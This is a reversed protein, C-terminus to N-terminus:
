AASIDVVFRHGSAEVRSHFTMSGITTAASQDSVHAHIWASTQAPNAGPYQFGAIASLFDAAAATNPKGPDERYVARVLQVHEDTNGYVVVRRVVPGQNIQCFGDVGGIDESVDMCTLGQQRALPLIAQLNIGAMYRPTPSPKASQTPAPTPSTKTAPHLGPIALRGTLALASLAVIVLVVLVVAAVLVLLRSRRGSPQDPLAPFSSEAAHHLPRPLQDVPLWQEGDWWYNGDSSFQPPAQDGM